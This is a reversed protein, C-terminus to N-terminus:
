EFDSDGSWKNVFGSILAGIVDELSQMYMFISWKRGAFVTALLMLTYIGASTWRLRSRARNAKEERKSAKSIRRKLQHNKFESLLALKYASVCNWASCFADVSLPGGAGGIKTLPLRTSIRSWPWPSLNGFGMISLASFEATMSQDGPEVRRIEHTEVSSEPIIGNEFARWLTDIKEPKLQKRFYVPIGLVLFAATKLQLFNYSGHPKTSVVIEKSQRPNLYGKPEWVELMHPKSCKVLYAMNVHSTNRIALTGKFCGSLGTTTCPFFAIWNRVRLAKEGPFPM